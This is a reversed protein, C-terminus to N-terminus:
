REDVVTVTKSQIRDVQADAVLAVALSALYEVLVVALAPEIGLQHAYPLAYIGIESKLREADLHLPKVDGAERRALDKLSM